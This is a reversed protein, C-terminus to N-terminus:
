SGALFPPRRLARRRGDRWSRYGDPPPPGGGERDALATLVAALEEASANGRVTIAAPGTGDPDGRLQRASKALSSRPTSM